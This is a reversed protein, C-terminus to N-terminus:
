QYAPCHANKMSDYGDKSCLFYRLILEHSNASVFRIKSTSYDYSYAVAYKGSKYQVTFLLADFSRYGLGFAFSNRYDALLNLDLSPPLNKGYKLHFSPVWTIASRSSNGLRKGGSIFVHRAMRAEGGLGVNSLKNGYANKLSVGFFFENNYLMIGPNIDPYLMASGSLGNTLPDNKAIVDPLTFQANRISYQILGAYIGASFYTENRFVPVHYAYALGMSTRTLPGTLGTYDSNFQFGVGHRNKSWPRKKNLLRKDGTLFFSYPNNSFGVWQSKTGLKIDLCKKSGASAPNVGFYNLSYNTYQELQQAKIFQLNCSILLIFFILERRIKFLNINM